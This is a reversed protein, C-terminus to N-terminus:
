LFNCQVPLPERIQGVMVCRHLGSMKRTNPLPKAMLGSIDAHQFYDVGSSSHSPSKASPSSVTKHDSGLVFNTLVDIQAASCVSWGLAAGALQVGGIEIEKSTVRQAGSKRCFQIAPNAELVWVLMHAYGREAMAQM